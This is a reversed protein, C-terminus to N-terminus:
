SDVVQHFEPHTKPEDPDVPRPRHQTMTVRNVGLRVQGIIPPGASFAPQQEEVAPEGVAVIGRRSNAVTPFKEHFQARDNNADGRKQERINCRKALILVLTM